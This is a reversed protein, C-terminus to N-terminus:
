RNDDCEEDMFVPNDKRKERKAGFSVQFFYKKIRLM